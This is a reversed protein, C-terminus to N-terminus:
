LIMAGRMWYPCMQWVCGGMEESMALGPAPILVVLSAVSLTRNAPDLMIWEVVHRGWGSDDVAELQLETVREV